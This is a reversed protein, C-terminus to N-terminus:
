AVRSAAERGLDVDTSFSVSLGNGKHQRGSLAVLRNGELWQHFLTSDVARAWTPRFLTWPTNRAVFRVTRSLVSAIQPPAADVVRNRAPGILLSATGKVFRYVTHAVSHFSQDIPQLLEPADRCSVFLQSRIVQSHEM